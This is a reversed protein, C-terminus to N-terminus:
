FEFEKQLSAQKKRLKLYDNESTKRSGIKKWIAGAQIRATKLNKLEFIKKAASVRSLKEDVIPM